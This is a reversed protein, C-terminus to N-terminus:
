RHPNRSGRYRGHLYRGDLDHRYPDVPRLLVRSNRARAREVGIQLSSIADRVEELEWQLRVAPPFQLIAQRAALRAEAVEVTAELEALELLDGPRGAQKQVRQASQYDAVAARLASEAEDVWLQYPDSDEGEGRLREVRQRALQVEVKRRRLIAKPYTRPVTQNTELVKKLRAEALKQLSEAYRLHVKPWDPVPERPAQQQAHAQPSQPLWAPSLSLLALVSIAGALGGLLATLLGRCSALTM